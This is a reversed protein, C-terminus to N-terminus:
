FVMEFRRSVIFDRTNEVAQFSIIRPFIHLGRGGRGHFQSFDASVCKEKQPIGFGIRRLPLKRLFNGGQVLTFRIM